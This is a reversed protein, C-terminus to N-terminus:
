DNGRRALGQQGHNNRTHDFFPPRLSRFLPYPITNWKKSDDNSVVSDRRFLYLSSSDHGDIEEENKTTYYLSPPIVQRPSHVKSEPIECNWMLIKPSAVLWPMPILKLEHRTANPSVRLLNYLSTKGIDIIESIEVDDATEAATRDYLLTCQLKLTFTVLIEGKNVKWQFEWQVTNM